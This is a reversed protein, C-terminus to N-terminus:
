NMFRHEKERRGVCLLPWLSVALTHTHTTTTTTLSELGGGVGEGRERCSSLGAGGKLDGVIEADWQSCRVEEEEEEQM